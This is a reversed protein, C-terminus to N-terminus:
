CLSEFCSSSLGSQRLTANRSRVAAIVKKDAEEFSKAPALKEVRTMLGHGPTCVFYRMGFVTGDHKGLKQDLEVGAWVGPGLAASEGVWRITGLGYRRGVDTRTGEYGGLGETSVAATGCGSVFLGSASLGGDAM